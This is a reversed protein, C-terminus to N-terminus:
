FQKLFGVKSQHLLRIDHINHKFMVLRTLGFGFAFGSYNTPNVGAHELVKKHVLGAGCMEVWQTYSCTSCGKTCFPCSMDIELGPEVFPFYGPRARVTLEKTDFFAQLFKKMTGMLHSLSIDKGVLLGEVQRFMFDHSADTAESRFVRGHAVIGFPPKKEQMSRIQVSSTHTRMVLSPLNLFFTDQLDRAPHNEPINLAEFNYFETEVEPGDAISYGMSIFIDEILEIAQTYLHLSGKAPPYGATVDFYRDQEEKQEIEKHEFAITQQLLLSEITTKLSNLLPGIARKEELSAQKLLPMLQAVKGKRGLYSVRIDELEKVTTSKDISDKCLTELTKIQEKLNKM